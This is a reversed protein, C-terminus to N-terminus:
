ENPDHSKTLFYVLYFIAMGIVFLIVGFSLIGTWDSLLESWLEM